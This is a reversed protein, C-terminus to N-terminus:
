RRNWSNRCARHDSWHFEDNFSAKFRRWDHLVKILDSEKAKISRCCNAHVISVKKVDKSNECFGSFFITDLFRVRLGLREFEGRRMLDLLVDQEKKGVVSNDKEGYLEDYLAITKNNSRIM